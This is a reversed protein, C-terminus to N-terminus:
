SQDPEPTQSRTHWAHAGCRAARQHPEQTFLDRVLGAPGIIRGDDTVTLHPENWNLVTMQGTELTRRVAIPRQNRSGRYQVLADDQDALFPGDVLIDTMVLCSAIIREEGAFIRDFLQEWTYGTYVVLPHVHTIPNLAALLTALAEPQDFPEGGLISVPLHYSALEAAVAAPDRQIGADMPWLHRSQCAGQRAPCSFNQCGQMYLSVRHGPGETYGTLIHQEPLNIM